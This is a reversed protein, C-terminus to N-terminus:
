YFNRMIIEITKEIGFHGAVKSDHCVKTIKTKLVNNPRMYLRNKIYSFRDKYQWNTPPEKGRTILDKLTAKRALWDLNNRCANQVEELLELEYEQQLAKSIMASLVMVEEQLLWTNRGIDNESFLRNERIDAYLQCIIPPVHEVLITQKPSLDMSGFGKDERNTIRLNDVEM